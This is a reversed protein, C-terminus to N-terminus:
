FFLKIYVFVFPASLLVSDFRDLFGGHGPLLTGSDKININRKFLSEVLDGFISPITVVLSMLIWQSITYDTYFKSIIISAIITFLVGGITGEITKKPSIRTCLPHKGIQKGTVYAMTDNTWIFIFFCLLLEFNYAKTIPNEIYFHMLLSFPIAIYLISFATFAVNYLPNPKNRFLEIIFLIFIVPFILLLIKINQLNYAVFVSTIFLIIGSIIGYIKQPKIFDNEIMRYFEIMSFVMFVLMVLAFFYKCIIISSVILLILGIGTLTRIVLNSM